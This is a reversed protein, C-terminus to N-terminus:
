LLILIGENSKCEEVNDLSNDLNNQTSITINSISSNILICKLNIFNYNIHMNLTAFSFLVYTRNTSVSRLFSMQELHKWCKKTTRASGSPKKEEAVIKSFTDKLTKWRKKGDEPNM